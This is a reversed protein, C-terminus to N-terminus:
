LNKMVGETGGGLPVSRNPPILAPVGSGRFQVVSEHAPRAGFLKGPKLLPCNPEPQRFALLVKNLIVLLANANLEQVNDIHDSRKGSLYVNLIAGTSLGEKTYTMLFSEYGYVSM